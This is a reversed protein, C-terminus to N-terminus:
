SELQPVGRELNVHTGDGLSGVGHCAVRVKGGISIMGKPSDRRRRRGRAERGM